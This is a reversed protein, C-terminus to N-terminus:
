ITGKTSLIKGQLFDDFVMARYLSVAVSKFISEHVHHRNKGHLVNVHLNIGANLVFSRFFECTLEESYKGIYGNLGMGTYEFFPRGSIDVATMTLADDMPIISSGFRVIGAKDGIAKQFAQGLVIGIDEVSHHDDIETDGACVLDIHMRGHKAVASLMHDLFPVGSQIRSEELSELVLRATIDTESTKRSVQASREM